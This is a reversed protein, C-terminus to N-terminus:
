RNVVGNFCQYIGVTDVMLFYGEIHATLRPSSLRGKETTIEGRQEGETM